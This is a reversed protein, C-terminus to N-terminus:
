LGSAFVNVIIAFDLSSTSGGVSVALPNSSILGSVPVNTM